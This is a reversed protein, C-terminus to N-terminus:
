RHISEQAQAEVAKLAEIRQKEKEEVETAVSIHSAFHM